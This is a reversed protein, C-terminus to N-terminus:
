YMLKCNEATNHTVNYRMLMDWFDVRFVSEKSLKLRYGLRCYMDVDMKPPWYNVEILDLLLGEFAMEYEDHVLYHTVGDITDNPM